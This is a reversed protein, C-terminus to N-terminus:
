VDGLDFHFRYNLARSTVVGFQPLMCWKIRLVVDELEGQVVQHYREIPGYRRPCACGHGFRLALGWRNQSDTNIDFCLNFYSM